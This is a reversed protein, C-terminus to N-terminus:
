PQLKKKLVTAINLLIERNNQGPDNLVTELLVNLVTGIKEGNFGLRYLDDGNIELCSVCLCDGDARIQEWQNRVADLRQKEDNTLALSSKIGLLEDFFSPGALSAAKRVSVPHDELDTELLKLLHVTRKISKNDYRLRKMISSAKAVRDKPCLGSLLVTWRIHLINETRALADFIRRREDGAAYLEENCFEPIIHNMLGTEFLLNIKEPSASLLIKSIEGNIREMSIYRILASNRKVSMFTEHEINFELQAAFRIARLMRLADERFRENPNGVTRVRKLRLDELGGFLDILGTGPNYAMSNITFDRRSLDPELVKTFTVYDPRRRDTYDGDTRFTTVEFQKDDFIVTVTGHKIGTDVTKAFIKKIDEPLACTAIDWDNPEKGMLKDRVCGGVVYAEFGNENLKNLIKLVYEPLDLIM